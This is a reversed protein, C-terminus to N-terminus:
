IYGLRCWAIIIYQVHKNEKLFRGAKEEAEVDDEKERSTGSGESVAEEAKANNGQEFWWVQFALSTVQPKCGSSCVNSQM